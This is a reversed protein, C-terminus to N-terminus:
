RAGPRPQGSRGAPRAFRANKAPVVATPKVEVARAPAPRKVTAAVPPTKAVPVPTKRAATAQAATRGAPTAAKAGDTAPMDKSTRLFVVTEQLMAFFDKFDQEFVRLIHKKVEQTEGDRVGETLVLYKKGNSAIKIQSAYTRSGSKFYKQFIVPRELGGNGSPTKGNSGQPM